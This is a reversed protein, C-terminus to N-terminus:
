NRFIWYSIEIDFTKKDKIDGEKLYIFSRPHEDELNDWVEIMTPERMVFSFGDVTAEYIISNM